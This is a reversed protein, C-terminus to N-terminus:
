LVDTICCKNYLMNYVSRIPKYFRKKLTRAAYKRNVDVLKKLIISM